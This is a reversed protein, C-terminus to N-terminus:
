VDGRRGVFVPFRPVMDKSFEQFRYTIITGVPLPTNRDADSLGTGANFKRGAPISMPRGRFLFTSALTECEYAGLRGRHRGKGASHGVVRAEADYFSKVKLLTSSRGRVYRSNPDRLMVGEGGRGEVTRLFAMLHAQSACEQHGVINFWRNNIRPRMEQLQYYREKFTGPMDPADFCMFSIQAWDEPEDQRRVISVTEQFWGAKIWLEGDLPIRPLNRTFWEPAHFRNGLRSIFDTGNWYARVGDLKESMLMGYPNQQGDWTEALLVAFKVEEDEPPTVLSLAEPPDVKVAPLRIDAKPVAVVSSPEDFVDDFAGLKSWVTAPVPPAPFPTNSAAVGVRVTVNTPHQIARGGPTVAPQRRARAALIRANEVSAGREGKLHKCSRAEIAESQNRWAPCSCSYVVDDANYIEYTRGSTSRVLRREGRALDAM